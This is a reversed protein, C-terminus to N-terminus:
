FEEWDDGVGGATRSAGVRKPLGRRTGPAARRTELRATAALIASPADPFAHPGAKQLERRVSDDRTRCVRFQSVLESLQSTEHSLARSAATTQEVIAANQQTVQDMRNMAANVEELGTSQENAGVAIESVVVIIENVQTIIRDLSSGTQAVLAVGNDVQSASASILGKIEKAAEASRQALARVESAVVAFGRGADGARAAEVGANLALLNTQFAIEDIVGIIQSIQRASRAIADMADVAQRVVFASKKADADAVAVVERARSAGEAAKKVTAIIEDLAAATQELSAAQQGTRRSLNDSATSIKEAGDEIAEASSVVALLTRELKEVVTNYDLRLSEAKAAFPTEILQSLEGRALRGLGHGLADIAFHDQRIEEAREIDRAAREREALRARSDAGVAAESEKVMAERLSKLARAIRGTGDRRQTFLVQASVDGAALAELRSVIAIYPAAVIRILAVGFAAFVLATACGGALGAAASLEQAGVLYILILLLTAMVAQFCFPITLESRTSMSEMFRAVM